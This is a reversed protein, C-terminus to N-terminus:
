LLNLSLEQSIQGRKVATIKVAAVIGKKEQSYSIGPLCFMMVALMGVFVIKRYM